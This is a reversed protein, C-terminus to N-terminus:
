SLRLLIRPLQRISFLVAVLPTAGAGARGRENNRCRQTPARRPNHQLHNASTASSSKRDPLSANSKNTQGAASPAPSTPKM